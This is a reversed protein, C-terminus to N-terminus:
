VKYNLDLNETFGLLNWIFKAFSQPFSNIKVSAARACFMVSVTNNGGQIYIEDKVVM